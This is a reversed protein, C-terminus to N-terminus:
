KPKPLWTPEYPPYPLWTDVGKRPMYLTFELNDTAPVDITASQNDQYNPSEAAGQWSIATQHYGFRFSPRFQFSCRSFGDKRIYGYLDHLRRTYLIAKGELDTTAEGQIPPSFGNEKSYTKYEISAGSVPDDDITTLHLVVPIKDLHNPADVFLLVGALCLAVTPVTIFPDFVQPRYWLNLALLFPCVVTYLAGFLGGVATWGGQTIMALSWLLALTGLGSAATLPFWLVFSWRSERPVFLGPIWSGILFVLIWQVLENNSM